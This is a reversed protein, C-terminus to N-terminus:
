TQVNKALIIRLDAVYIIYMKKERFRKFRM